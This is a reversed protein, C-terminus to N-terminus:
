AGVPDRRDNANAEGLEALVDALGDVGIASLDDLFAHSGITTPVVLHLRGGRHARV